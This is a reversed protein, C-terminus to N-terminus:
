KSGPMSKKGRNLYERFLPHFLSYRGRSNRTVLEKEILRSLHTGRKSMNALTRIESFSLIENESKAIAFLIKREEFSARELMAEFVDKGLEEILLPMLKELRKKSVKGKGNLEKFILFCLSKLIYPHGQSLRHIEHMAEKSFEFGSTNKLPLIIAELSEEMSFTELAVRRFFRTTPSYLKASTDYFVRKGSLIIMIKCGSRPLAQFVNRVTEVTENLEKKGLFELNDVMILVIRGKTAIIDWLNILNSEFLPVSNAHGERVQQIIKDLRPANIERVDGSSLALSPYERQIQIFFKQIIVELVAQSTQGSQVDVIFSIADYEKKSIEQAKLVLATKGIGWEGVIVVNIAKAHATYQLAERLAALIQKRGAFYEPEVPYAPMYPNINIIMNREGSEIM